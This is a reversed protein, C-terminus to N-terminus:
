QVTQGLDIIRAVPDMFASLLGTFSLLYGPTSKGRLILMIGLVLVLIDAIRTLAEPILGLFINIRMMKVNGNSVLAQYGSWKTFFGNEAGTAKITEIM